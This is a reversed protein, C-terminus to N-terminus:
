KKIWVALGVAEPGTNIALSPTIKKIDIDGQYPIVNKIKEKLEFFDEASQADLLVLEYDKADGIYEKALEIMMNISKKYGRTKKVTYYIGDDNCSILPKINLAEAVTGAVLGIRGGKQLYELSGVTFFVKKNHFGQNIKTIIDQYSVNDKALIGAEIVSFGSAVSINKTDIVTIELGQYDEALLSVMNYTGSLGSSLLIVIVHTYGLDKISNLVTEVELPSPLSTTVKFSEMAQFIEENTLDNDSYEKGDIIVRLPLKFIPLELTYKHFVDTGSDTIIAVKESM